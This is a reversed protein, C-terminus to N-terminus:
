SHTGLGVVDVKGIILRPVFEGDILPPVVPVDLPVRFPRELSPRFEPTPDVFTLSFTATGPTPLRIWGTEIEVVLVRVLFLQGNAVHDGVAESPVAKSHFDFVALHETGVTMALLVGVVPTGISCHIPGTLRGIGVPIEPLPYSRDLALRTPAFPTIFAVGRTEIKVVFIRVLLAIADSRHDRVSARFGLNSAFDLVADNQTRVAM